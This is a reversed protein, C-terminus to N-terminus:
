FSLAMWFNEMKGHFKFNLDQILHIKLLKEDVHRVRVTNSYLIPGYQYM